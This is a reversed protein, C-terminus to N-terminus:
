ALKLNPAVAEEIDPLHPLPHHSLMLVLEYRSSINLKKYANHLQSRVTIGATGLLKSIEGSKMGKGALLVVDRERPSLESFGEYTKQKNMVQDQCKLSLLFTGDNIYPTESPCFSIRAKLEPLTPHPMEVLPVVGHRHRAPSRIACIESKKKKIETLIDEPVILTKAKKVKNFRLGSKWCEGLELASANFYLPKLNWDLVVAATPLSWMFRELTMRCHLSDGPATLRDVAAQFHSRCAALIERERETFDGQEKTRLITLCALWANQRWSVLSFAYETGLPRMFEKYFRSQKTLKSCNHTKTSEEQIGCNLWSQDDSKSVHKEYLSLLEPVSCFSEMELDYPRLVLVQMRNPVAESVLKFLSRALEQMTRSRHLQIIAVDSVVTRVPLYQKQIAKMM